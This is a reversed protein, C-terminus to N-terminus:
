EAQQLLRVLTPNNAGASVLSNFRATLESVRDLQADVGLGESRRSSILRWVDDSEDLVSEMEALQDSTANRAAFRAVLGRLAARVEIRQAITASGQVAVV